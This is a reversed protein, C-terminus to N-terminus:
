PPRDACSADKGGTVDGGVEVKTRLEAREERAEALRVPDGRLFRYTPCYLRIGAESYFRQMASRGASIGRTKRLHDALEAHTWNARDLGQGAPGEIM